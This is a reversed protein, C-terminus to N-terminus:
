AAGRQATSIGREQAHHYQQIKQEELNNDKEKM